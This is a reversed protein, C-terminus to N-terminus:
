RVRICSDESCTWGNYCYDIISNWELCLDNDYTERCERNGTQSCTKQGYYDCENTCLAQNCEYIYYNPLSLSGKNIKCQEGLLSCDQAIPNESCDLIIGEYTRSTKSYAWKYNNTKVTTQKICEGNLCLDDSDCNLSTSSWKLCDDGGSSECIKYSITSTCLKLGEKSCENTCISIENTNSSFFLFGILGGLLIVVVFILLSILLKKTSLLNNKKKNKM